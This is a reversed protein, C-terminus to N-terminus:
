LRQLSSLDVPLFRDLDVCLLVWREWVSINWLSEWGFIEFVLHEVVKQIDLKYLNGIQLGVVNVFCKCGPGEWIHYCVLYM